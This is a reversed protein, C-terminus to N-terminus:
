AEGTGSGDQSVGATLQEAVGDLVTAVAASHEALATALEPYGIRRLVDPLEERLEQLTAQVSAAADAGQRLERDGGSGDAHFYHSHPYDQFCDHRILQKGAPAAGHTEEATIRVSPGQDGGIFRYATEFRLPGASWSGTQRDM